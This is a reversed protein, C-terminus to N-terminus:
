RSLVPAFPLLVVKIQFSDSCFFLASFGILCSFVGLTVKFSFWGRGHSSFVVMEIDLSSKYLVVM